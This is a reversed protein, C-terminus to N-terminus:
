RGAWFYVVATVCAVLLAVAALIRAQQLRGTQERQQGLMREIVAQQQGRQVELKEELARVLSGTAELEASAASRYAEHQQAQEAQLARLQALARQTEDLRATTGALATELSAVRAQATDQLQRIEDDRTELRSVAAALATRLAQLQERASDQLFKLQNGRAELRQTSEALEAELAAIQAQEATRGEMSATLQRELTELRAVGAMRATEVQRGAQALTELESALEALHRDFGAQMVEIRRALAQNESTLVLIEEDLADRQQREAARGGRPEGLRAKLMRWIQMLSM